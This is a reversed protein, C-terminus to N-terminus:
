AIRQPRQRKCMMACMPTSSMRQYDVKLISSSGLRASSSPAAHGHGRVTPSPTPSRHRVRALQKGLKSRRYCRQRAQTEPLVSAEVCIPAPTRLSRSEVMSIGPGIESDGLDSHGLSMKMIPTPPRIAGFSMSM